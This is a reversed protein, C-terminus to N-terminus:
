SVLKLFFFFIELQYKELTKEVKKKGARCSYISFAMQTFTHIHAHTEEWYIASYHQHMDVIM